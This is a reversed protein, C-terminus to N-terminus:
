KENKSKNIQRKLEKKVATYEAFVEEREEPKPFSRTVKRKKKLCQKRTIAIEENWGYLPKKNASRNKRPNTRECVSQLLEEINEASVPIEHKIAKLLYINFKAEHLHEKIKWRKDMYKRRKETPKDMDFTIFRHDSLSEKDKLVKWERVHAALSQTAITLDIVSKGNNRVLTHEIGENMVVM